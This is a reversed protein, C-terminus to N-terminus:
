EVAYVRARGFTALLRLRGASAQGQFHEAFRPVEDEDAVLHISGAVRRVTEVVLDLQDGGVVDWRITPRGSYYRISGSHQAALVYTGEPLHDRVFRGAQPYKQELAGSEFVHRRRSEDLLVLTMVLVFAFSAAPRVGAPLRRIGALVVMGTGIDFGTRNDVVDGVWTALGDGTEPIVTNPGGTAAGIVAGLVFIVVGMVAALGGIARLDRRELM